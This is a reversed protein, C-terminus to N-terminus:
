AAGEPPALRVRLYDTTALYVQKAALMCMVRSGSVSTALVLQGDLILGGCANRRLEAHGISEGNPTTIAIQM